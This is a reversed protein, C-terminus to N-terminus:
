VDPFGVDFSKQIARSLIYVSRRSNLREVENWKEIGRALCAWYHGRELRSCCWSKSRKGSWLSKLKPSALFVMQTSRKAQKEHQIRWAVESKDHQPKVLKQLRRTPYEKRKIPDFEITSYQICSTHLYWIILSRFLTAWQTHQTLDERKVVVSISSTCHLVLTRIPSVFGRSYWGM